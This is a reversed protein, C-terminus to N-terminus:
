GHDDTRRRPTDQWVRLGCRNDAEAVFSTQADPRSQMTLDRTCLCLLKSARAAVQAKM